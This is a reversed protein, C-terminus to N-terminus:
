GKDKNKTETKRWLVTRSFPYMLSSYPPSQPARVNVLLFILPLSRLALEQRTGVFKARTLRVTSLNQYLVLTETQPLITHDSHFLDSLRGFILQSTSPLYPCLTRAFNLRWMVPKYCCSLCTLWGTAYLAFM